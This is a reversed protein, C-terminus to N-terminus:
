KFEGMSTAECYQAVLIAVIDEQANVGLENFFAEIGDQDMVEGKAFKSFMESCKKADFKSANAKAKVAQMEEAHNIFYYEVSQNLDRAPLNIVM